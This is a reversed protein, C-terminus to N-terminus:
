ATGRARLMADAVAYSDDAIGDPTGGENECLILGAFDPYGESETLDKHWLLLLSQMAKAAFYDRLDMGYAVGTGGATPMCMPFAPGGNNIDSM